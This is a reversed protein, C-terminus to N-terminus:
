GEPLVNDNDAGAIVRVLISLGRLKGGFDDIAGCCRPRHSTASKRITIRIIFM